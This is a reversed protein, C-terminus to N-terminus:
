PSRPPQVAPPSGEVFDRFRERARDRNAGFQLLLWDVALYRPPRDVGLFFRYSSWLWSAPRDCLGARVPNLALYRSLEVLHSERTVPVSAYRREFVHGRGSHRRNFGMAYHGNLRQMGAALDPNPTRVLLHYHTTM